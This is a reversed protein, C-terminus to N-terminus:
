TFFCPGFFHLSDILTFCYLPRVELIKNILLDFMAPVEMRRGRLGSTVAMRFTIDNKEM